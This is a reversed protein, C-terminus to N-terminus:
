ATHLRFANGRVTEGRAFPGTLTALHGSAESALYPSNQWGRTEQIKVQAIAMVQMKRVLLGTNSGPTM